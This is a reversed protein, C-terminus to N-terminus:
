IFGNSQKIRKKCCVIINSHHYNLIREIEKFSKWQKIFNGKLDYQNIAIGYLNNNRQTSIMREKNTGYKNNYEKTCWELNEVCNNFHNEDIHNVEPYNNPNPIFTEAVLRHISKTEYKNDKHLTIYKYNNKKNITIDLLKEKYVKKINNKDIVIRHLSKVRGKNSIQYYGEYGKIDKWIEDKLDISFYNKKNYNFIM